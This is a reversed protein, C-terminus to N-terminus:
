LVSKRTNISFKCTEAESSSSSKKNGLLAGWSSSKSKPKPPPSPKDEVDALFDTLFYPILIKM